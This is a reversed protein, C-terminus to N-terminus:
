RDSTDLDSRRTWAGTATVYVGNQSGDTQGAVLWEEGAALVTQGDSAQGTGSLTINSTFVGKVHALEAM